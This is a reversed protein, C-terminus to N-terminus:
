VLLLVLVASLLLAVVGVRGLVALAVVTLALPGARDRDGAVAGALWTLGLTAVAVAVLARAMAAPHISADVWLALVVCAAVLSPYLVPAHVSRSAPLSPAPDIIEV